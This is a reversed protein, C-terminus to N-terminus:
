HKMISETITNNNIKTKVTMGMEKKRKEEKSIVSNEM